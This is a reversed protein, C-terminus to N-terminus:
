NYECRMASGAPNTIMVCSEHDPCGDPMKPCDLGCLRSPPTMNDGPDVLICTAPISGSSPQDCDRDTSCHKTCYGTGSPSSQTGTCLLSSDCVHTGDSCPGFPGSTELPYKCHFEPVTTGTPDSGPGPGPGSGGTQMVGTQQCTMDAPCTSTDSTS